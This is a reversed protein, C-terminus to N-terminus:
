SEVAEDRRELHLLAAGTLWGERQPQAIILTRPPGLSDLLAKVLAATAPDLGALPDDALLVQPEVVLARALGVRKRMGGSLAAPGLGAAGELGLADLVMLSRRAAEKAELGRRLLPLAVNDLVSASDFLADSQFVMALGGMRQRKERRTLEDVRRGDWVVHGVSPRVLGALCKLATTKGSGAAGWVLTRSGSPFSGSLGELATAAGFRVTVDELALDM